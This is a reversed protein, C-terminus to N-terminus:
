IKLLQNLLNGAYTWNSYILDNEKCAESAVSALEKTMDVVLIFFARPSFFIHHCAYYASHGAFDLLSLMKLNNTSVSPKCDSLDVKQDVKANNIENEQFMDVSLTLDNDHQQSQKATDASDMAESKENVNLNSSLKSSSPRGDLDENQKTQLSNTAKSQELIKEDQVSFSAEKKNGETNELTTPTICLCAKNKEKDPCVEILYYLITMISTYIFSLQFTVSMMERKSFTGGFNVSLHMFNKNIILLKKLLKHHQFHKGTITSENEHLKFFHSHVEIGSTSTTNLDKEGKLKKVLTSKGARACGIVMGRGNYVSNKGKKMSKVYTKRDKLKWYFIEQPIKDILIFFFNYRLLYIFLYM